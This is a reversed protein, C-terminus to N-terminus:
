FRRSFAACCEGGPPITVTCSLGDTVVLLDPNVTGDLIRPRSELCFIQRPKELWEKRPTASARTEAEGKDLLDDFFMMPSNGRAILGLSPSDHGHSQRYGLRLVAPV